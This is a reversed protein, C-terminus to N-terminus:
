QKSDAAFQKVWLDGKKISDSGLNFLKNMYARDFESSRPENFFYPICTFKFDFNEDQATTFFRYLDGYSQATLLMAFSVGAIDGVKPSVYEPIDALKGNRIAYIRVHSNKIDEYGTILLAGFMQTVVSGDVHMEDYSVGNFKVPVMVPPFAVPISASALIVNRFLELAEPTDFSAIAGMDWIVFRRADLNTTGIYLRRGSAHERAIARMFDPTVNQRIIRKLPATDMISPRGEFLFESINRVMINEDSVQTYTDRLIHDYSPGLFAAPAILAGTSVGTVIDFSPRKDNETWGCLVGAAYAGNAGGGSIVLINVDPNKFSAMSLGSKIIQSRLDIGDMNVPDIIIRINSMGPVEAKYTLDAPVAPHRRFTVYGKVFYLWGAIALILVTLAILIKKM